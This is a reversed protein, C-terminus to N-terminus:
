EGNTPSSNPVDHKRFKLHLLHATPFATVLLVLLITCAMDVESKYGSLSSFGQFHSTSWDFSVQFLIILAALALLWRFLRTPRGSLDADFWHTSKSANM